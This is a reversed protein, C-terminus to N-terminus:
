TLNCMITRKGLPDKSIKFGKHNHQETKENNLRGEKNNNNDDLQTKFYANMNLHYFINLLYFLGPEIQTKLNQPPIFLGKLIIGVGATDSKSWDPDHEGWWHGHVLKWVWYWVGRGSM